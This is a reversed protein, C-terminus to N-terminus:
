GVEWGREKADKKVTALKKEVESAVDQNERGRLDDFWDCLRHYDMFRALERIRSDTSEGFVSLRYDLIDTIPHDGPKGNM